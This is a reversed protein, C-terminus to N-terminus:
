KRNKWKRQTKRCEFRENRVENEKCKKVCRRTKPHLEKGEPCEGTRIVLRPKGQKKVIASTSKPELMDPDKELMSSMEKPSISVSKTKISDITKELNVPIVPGDVLIHNEFHKNFKELIGCKNLIEEYRNMATEIDIRDMLNASVMDLFLQELEGALKKDMHANLTKLVYILGLGVGYLDITDLCKNVAKNYNDEGPVIQYLMTETFHKVIGETVREINLLKGKKNASYLLFSRIANSGETNNDTKLSGIVSGVYDTKFKDSRKAFKDYNSRNLYKTDLPFSWHYISFGYKSRAAEKIVNSKKQMMGFDILNIRGNEVNYVINQPKLDHHIYGHDLFAKVGGLVRHAELWFHEIRQINEANKPWKKANDAFDELNDGGNEMVLLMYKALNRTLNSDEKKLRSCKAASKQNYINVDVKCKKPAGLYYDHKPDVQEMIDYEAYEKEAESDKMLKTIKNPPPRNEKECNLSPKHVCGYTGEGVVESSDAM